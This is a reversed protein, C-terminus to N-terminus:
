IVNKFNQFKSLKPILINHGKPCVFSITKRQNKQKLCIQHIWFLQSRRASEFFKVITPFRFVMFCRLAHTFGILDKKSLASIKQSIRVPTADKYKRVILKKFRESKWCVVFGRLIGVGVEAGAYSETSRHPKMYNRFPTLIFTRVSRSTFLM